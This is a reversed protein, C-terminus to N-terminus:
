ATVTNKNEYEPRSEQPPLLTLTYSRGKSPVLRVQGTRSLRDVILFVQNWTLNTCQRAIDELDCTGAHRILGIVRDEATMEQNM